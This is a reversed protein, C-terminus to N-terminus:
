NLIIGGPLQFLPETCVLVQEQLSGLNLECFGCLPECHFGKGGTGFFGVGAEPSCSCWASVHYIDM